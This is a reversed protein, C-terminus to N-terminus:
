LMQRERGDYPLITEIVEIGSFLKAKEYVPTGSFYFRENGVQIYAHDPKVIVLLAKDRFLEDVTTYRSM